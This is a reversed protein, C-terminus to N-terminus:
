KNLTLLIRNFRQELRETVMDHIIIYHDLKKAYWDSAVNDELAKVKWGKLKKTLRILEQLRILTELTEIKKDEM